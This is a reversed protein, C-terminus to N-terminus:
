GNPVAKRAHKCDYCVTTPLRRASHILGLLFDDNADIAAAYIIVDGGCVSCYDLIELTM